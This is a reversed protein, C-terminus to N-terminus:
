KLRRWGLGTSWYTRGSPLIRLRDPPIGVANAIVNAYNAVSPHDGKVAYHGQAEKSM